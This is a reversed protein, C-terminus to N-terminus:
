YDQASISSSLARSVSIGLKIVSSALLARYIKAGEVVEV